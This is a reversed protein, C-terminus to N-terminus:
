SHGGITMKYYCVKSASAACVCSVEILSQIAPKIKSVKGALDEKRRDLEKKTVGGGKGRLETLATHCQRLEEAPSPLPAAATAAAPTANGTDGGAAGPPRKGSGGANAPAQQRQRKNGGGTNAPPRQMQRKNGGGAPVLQPERSGVANAPKNGGAPAQQRHHPKSGRAEPQQRKKGGAAAPARVGTTKGATKMKHWCKNCLTKIGAPGTRLEPTKTTHCM